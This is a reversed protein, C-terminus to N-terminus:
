ESIVRFGKDDNELKKISRDPKNSQFKYRVGIMVINGRNTFSNDYYSSYNPMNVWRQIHSKDGVYRMGVSVNLSQSASYSLTCWSEPSSKSHKYLDYTHTPLGYFGSLSFKGYNLGWNIRGDWYNNKQSIDPFRISNYGVNWGIFGYRGLTYRFTLLGSWLNNHGANALSQVYGESTEQGATVISNSIRRYRIAPEIYFHGMSFSYNLRIQQTRYPKLSPNGTIISLTDSSTNYPNLQVVDPPTSQMSYNLTLAHHSNFRYNMNVVPRLRLYHDSYDNIDRFVADAGASVALSFHEWARSIDIFAYENWEKHVFESKVGENQYIKNYQYYNNIGTKIKFGSITFQYSPTFAVGTHHNKFNFNYTLENKGKELQNVENKNKSLTLQLLFDLTSATFSHKHYLNATGTWSKDNYDRTYDYVSSNTMAANNMETKGYANNSQPIYDFTASFSTYDKESWNRDGGIAWYTDTYDGERKYQVKRSSEATRSTELMDSKNNLFTFTQGSIYFSSKSNGFELSADAIGFLLTPSTNVGGNFSTYAKNSKKVKINVVSTYGERLFEASSTPIVEVSLIDESNIASIGGEKRIGNILILPKSGDNLTIKRTGPDIALSPVEQLADLVDKKKLASESLMFTQGAASQKIINSRNTKVVVENLAVADDDLVFSREIDANVVIKEKLPKFGIFSLSICYRGAKINSLQFQGKDDSIAGTVLTTSDSALLAVSVYSVPQKSKDQVIGKLTYNQAHLVVTYLVILTLIGIRKMIDTIKCANDKKRRHRVEKTSVGHLM